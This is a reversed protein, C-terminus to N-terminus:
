CENGELIGKMLRVVREWELVKGMGRIRGLVVIGKDLLVWYVGIEVVIEKMVVLCWM